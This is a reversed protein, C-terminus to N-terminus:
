EISITPFVAASQASPVITKDLSRQPTGYSSPKKGQPPIKYEKFESPKKQWNKDPPCPDVRALDHAVTAAVGVDDIPGDMSWAPGSGQAKIPVCVEGDPLDKGSGYRTPFQGLPCLNTNQLGDALIKRVEPSASPPLPKCIVAVVPHEPDQEAFAVSVAILDILLLATAVILRFVKM